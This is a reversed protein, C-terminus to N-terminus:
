GVASGVGHPAIDTHFTQALAAIKYSESIGGARAVNPMIVDVAGETLFTSFDFRTFLTEGNVLTLPLAQRLRRYGAVDDVAVPEEFWTIGLDALVQGIRVAQDSTYACNLDVLLDVDDGIAARVAAAHAVDTEIGRGLKLKLARFGETVFRQAAEASQAPREFMPVPSAYVDIHSRHPGGLLAHVPLGLAKGKLDWLAIDAGSMAELYFGRVHGGGSMADFMTSWLRDVALPHRGILLPALIDDVITATVRPSPLGYCEGLGQLGGATTIRVLTTFQGTRQLTRHSAAPHVLWEPPAQGGYLDSFRAVLPIAEVSVIELDKDELAGAGSANAVSLTM